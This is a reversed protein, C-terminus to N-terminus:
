RPLGAADNEVGALAQLDQVHTVGVDKGAHGEDVFDVAGVDADNGDTVAEGHAGPRRCEGAALEKREFGDDGAM